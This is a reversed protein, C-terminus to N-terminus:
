AWCVTLHEVLALYAFMTGRRVAQGCSGERSRKFKAAQCDPSTAQPHLWIKLLRTVYSMAGSCPADADGLCRLIQLFDPGVWSRNLWLRCKLFIGLHDACMIFIIFINTWTDLSGTTSHLPPPTPVCSCIADRTKFKRTQLKCEKPRLDMVWYCPASWLARIVKVVTIHHFM